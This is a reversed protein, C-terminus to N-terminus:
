VKWENIKQIVYSQDQQNLSSYFPISQFEEFWGKQKFDVSSIQLQTMEIDAQINGLKLYDFFDSNTSKILFRWPIIGSDCQEKLLLRKNKIGKIYNDRKSLLSNREDIIKELSLCGFAANLNSMRFNYRATGDFKQQNDYYRLDNIIVSKDFSNHLIAGGEICNFQKTPYFSLVMLDATSKLNTRTFFAQCADEIIPVGYKRYVERPAPIGFHSPAIIADFPNEQFLKLLSHDCLSMHNPDLDCFVVEFGNALVANSIAHCTSIAPIVVKAKNLKLSKLALFLASFGSATTNAFKFGFTQALREEFIKIHPGTVLQNSQFAEEILKDKFPLPSIKIKPIYSM